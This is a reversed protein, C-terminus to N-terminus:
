SIVSPPLRAGSGIWTPLVVDNLVLVYWCRPPRLAWVPRVKLWMRVLMRASPWDSSECWSCLRLQHLGPKSTNSHVCHRLFGLVSSFFFSWSCHVPGRQNRETNSERYKRSSERIQKQHSERYKRSYERSRDRLRIERSRMNSIDLKSFKFPRNDLISKIACLVYAGCDCSDTKREEASTQNGEIQLPSSHTFFFFCIERSVLRSIGGGRRAFRM